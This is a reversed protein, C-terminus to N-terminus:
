GAVPVWDSVRELNKAEARWDCAEVHKVLYKTAQTLSWKRYGRWMAFGCLPRKAVPKFPLEGREFGDGRTL